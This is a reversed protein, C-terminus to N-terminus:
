VSRRDFWSQWIHDARLYTVQLSIPRPIAFHHEFNRPLWAANAILLRALHIAEAQRPCLLIFAQIFSEPLRM